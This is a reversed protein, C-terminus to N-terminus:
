EPFSMIIALKGKALALIVLPFLLKSNEVVRSQQCAHSEAEIMNLLVQCCM